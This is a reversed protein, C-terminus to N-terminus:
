RLSVIKIPIDRQPPQWNTEIRVQQLSRADLLNTDFGMVYPKILAYSSAFYIPIAPLEAFAQQESLIAPPTVGSSPVAPQEEASVADGSHPQTPAPSDLKAQTGESGNTETAAAFNLREPDFMALMNTAEDHTQMVFSRRAVDYEGVRLAAEYEDWNRLVIQTEIGLVSLWMRAIASAVTRHQENRNVLLRIRPFNTGDAFGAEALLRRARAADFTM